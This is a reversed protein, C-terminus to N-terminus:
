AWIGPIPNGCYRCRGSRVNMEGVMYGARQIILKGCSPCITNEGEHGPVNGIYVYNLGARQAVRRANELTSVPTPPLTRLKYLPYFRAFHIPTDEGLEERIWLCMDEIISMDDNQTPIVLNTIEV